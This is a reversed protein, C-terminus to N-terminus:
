EFLGGKKYKLIIDAYKEIKDSHSVCIVSKGNNCYERLVSFVYEENKEDLNGTPEDAIICDPNNAFARAIAVRQQEGGSIQSSYKESISKVDFKELFSQAKKEADKVSMNLLLPLMVNELANFRPDLFCSQFVFGFMDRRFGTIDKGSLDSVNLGNIEITGSDPQEILGLMQLFTSKGAGSEGKIAYFVSKEFSYTINNVAITNNYKKYLNNCKLFNNNLCM